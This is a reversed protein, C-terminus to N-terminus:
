AEPLVTLEPPTLEMPKSLPKFKELEIPENSCNLVPEISVESDLTASVVTLTLILETFLSCTSVFISV